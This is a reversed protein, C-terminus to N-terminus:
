EGLDRHQWIINAVWAVPVALVCAAIILIATLKDM